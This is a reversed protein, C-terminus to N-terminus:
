LYGEVLIFLMCTCLCSNNYQFLTCIFFLSYCVLRLVMVAKNPDAGWRLLTDVVEDNGDGSAAYLPNTGEQVISLIYLTYNHLQKCLSTAMVYSQTQLPIRVWVLIVIVDCEVHM